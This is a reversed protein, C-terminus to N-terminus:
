KSGIAISTIEELIELSTESVFESYTKPEEESKEEMSFISPMSEELISINGLITWSIERIRERFIITQILM